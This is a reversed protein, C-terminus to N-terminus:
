RPNKKKVDKPAPVSKTLAAMLTNMVEMIEPFGGLDDLWDVIMEHTIEEDTKVLCFRLLDPLIKTPSTKM